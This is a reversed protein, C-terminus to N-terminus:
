PQADDDDDNESSEFDPDSWDEESSNPDNEFDSLEHIGDKDRNECNYRKMKQYKEKTNDKKEDYKM